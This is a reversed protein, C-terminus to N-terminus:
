AAPLRPTRRSLGLCSLSFNRCLCRSHRFVSKIRKRWVLSLFGACRRGCNAFRASEPLIALQKCYGEMLVALPTTPTVKIYLDDWEQCTRFPAIPCDISTSLLRARM